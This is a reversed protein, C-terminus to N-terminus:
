DREWDSGPTGQGRSSSPGAQLRRREGARSAPGTGVSLLALRASKEGIPSLMNMLPRQTQGMAPFFSGWCHRGSAATSIGVMPSQRSFGFAATRTPGIHVGGGKRRPEPLLGQPGNTLNSM